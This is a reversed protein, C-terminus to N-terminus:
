SGSPDPCNSNGKQSPDINGMNHPILATREKEKLLREDLARYRNIERKMLKEYRKRGEPTRLYKERKLAPRKYLLAISREDFMDVQKESLVIKPYCRDFNKIVQRPGYRSKGDFGDMVLLYGGDADKGPKKLSHCISCLYNDLWKYYKDETKISRPWQSKGATDFHWMCLDAVPPLSFGERSAQVVLTRTDYALKPYISAMFNKLFRIWKIYNGDEDLLIVSESISLMLPLYRSNGEGLVLTTEVERCKLIGLLEGNDPFCAYVGPNSAWPMLGTEMLEWTAAEYFERNKGQSYDPLTIEDEPALNRYYVKETRNAGLREATDSLLRRTKELRSKSKIFYEVEYQYDRELPYVRLKKNEKLQAVSIKKGAPYGAYKGKEINKFIVQYPHIFGPGGNKFPTIDMLCPFKKQSTKIQPTIKKPSPPRCASFDTKYLLLSVVATFLVGFFIIAGPKKCISSIKKRCRAFDALLGSFRDFM